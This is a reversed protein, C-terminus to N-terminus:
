VNANVKKEKIKEKALKLFEKEVQKKTYSVCNFKKIEELAKFEEEIFMYQLIYFKQKEKCQLQVEMYKGRKSEKKTILVDIEYLRM